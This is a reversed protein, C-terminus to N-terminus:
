WGVPGLIFYQFDAVRHNFILKLIKPEQKLIADFFSFPDALFSLTLNEEDMQISCHQKVQEYKLSSLFLLYLPFLM